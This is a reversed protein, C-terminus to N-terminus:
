CASPYAAQVMAVQLQSMRWYSFFENHENTSLNCWSGLDLGVDRLKAAFDSQWRTARGPSVRLQVPADTAPADSRTSPSLRGVSSTSSANRVMALAYHAPTTSFSQRGPQSSASSRTNENASLHHYDRRRGDDRPSNTFSGSQSDRRALVNSQSHSRRLPSAAAPTAPDAPASPQQVLKLEERQQFLARETRQGITPHPQSQSPSSSGIGQSGRPSTASPHRQVPAFRPPAIPSIARALAASSSLGPSAACDSPGPSAKRPLAINQLQPPTAVGRGRTAGGSPSRSGARPSQRQGAARPQQQRLLVPPAMALKLRSAITSAVVPRSQHASPSSSHTLSPSPMRTTHQRQSPSVSRRTEANTLVGGRSSPTGASTQRAHYSRPKGADRMIRTQETAALLYAIISNVHQGELQMGLAACRQEPTVLTLLEWESDTLVRKCRIFIPQLAAPLKRLREESNAKVQSIPSSSHAAYPVGHM